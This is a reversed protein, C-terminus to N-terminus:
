LAELAESLLKNLDIAVRDVVLEYLIEALCDTMKQHFDDATYDIGTFGAKKQFAPHAILLAFALKGATQCLDKCEAQMPWQGEPCHYLLNAALMSADILRVIEVGELPPGMGQDSPMIYTHKETM